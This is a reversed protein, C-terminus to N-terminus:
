YKIKQSVVYNNAVLFCVTDALDMVIIQLVFCLCM